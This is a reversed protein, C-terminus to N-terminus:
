TTELGPVLLIPRPPPFNNGSEYKIVNVTTEYEEESTQLLSLKTHTFCATPLASDFEALSCSLVVWSDHWLVERTTVEKLNLIIDQGGLM